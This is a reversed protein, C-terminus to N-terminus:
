SPKSPAQKTKTQNWQFEDLFAQWKQKDTQDSILRPLIQILDLFAKSVASVPNSGKRGICARLFHRPFALVFHKMFPELRSSGGQRLRYIVRNRLVWRARRLQADKSQSVSGSFHQVFADPCIALSAGCQRLRLCLDFDEYYSGFLPDFPGSKLLLPWKVIMATAPLELVTQQSAPCDKDVNLWEDRFDPQQKLIDVFTMDWGKGDYSRLMPSVAGITDNQDLVELCRDLWGSTSITDQNLFCVTKTDEPVYRLAFNNAEAFGMPKPTKVVQLTHHGLKGQYLTENFANDVLLVDLKQNTSEVLSQICDPLWEDGKYAVIIIVHRAMPKHEKGTNLRTKLYDASAM